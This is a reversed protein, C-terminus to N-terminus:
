VNWHTFRKLIMKFPQIGFPEQSPAMNQCQRLCYLLGTYSQQALPDTGHCHKKLLQKREGTQLLLLTLLAIGTVPRSPGYPHALDLSGCRRSLRSVSPPLTTLRAKGGM